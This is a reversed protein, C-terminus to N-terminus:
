ENLKLHKLWGALFKFHPGEDSKCKKSTGRAHSYSEWLLYNTFTLSHARELQIKTTTKKEKKGTVTPLSGFYERTPSPSVIRATAVQESSM